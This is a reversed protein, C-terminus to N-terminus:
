ESGGRWWRRVTWGRKQWKFRRNFRRDKALLPSGGMIRVRWFAKLIGEEMDITESEPPVRRLLGRREPSVEHRMTREGALLPRFCESWYRRRWREAEDAADVPDVLDEDVPEDEWALEFSGTAGCIEGWALSASRSAVLRMRANIAEREAALSPLVKPADTWEADPTRLRHLHKRYEYIWTTADLYLEARLDWLRGRQESRAGLGTELLAGVITGGVAAIGVAVTADM